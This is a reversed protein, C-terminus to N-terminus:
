TTLYCEGNQCKGRDGTTTFANKENGLFIQGHIPTLTGATFTAAKEILRRNLDTGNQCNHAAASGLFALSVALVLTTGTLGM